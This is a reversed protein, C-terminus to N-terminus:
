NRDERYRRQYQEQWELIASRLGRNPTLVKHLLKLNTMPSTDHGSDLWARIAEAEYTFGDAAFHPDSMIEQFIPCLFDSPTSAEDSSAATISPRRVRPSAAKMLPGVAVWVERALDPRRTRSMEACRLGLHALQNAQVFPWSGASPDVISHLRGKKMADQVVEVIKQPSRGTLLQLIIIGFSYVDSQTTLEGTSMFEPDMYAFAGRPTTTRYSNSQILLRCLGFDGLKSVLNADLLINDPKLDGHVVPHPKNSHLFTLASCMEAIIRTRVQWTLPSTNNTCALRDELSGNPLFEYVLGFAERCSGILTVINPHRVRGLVAVEQHFESQGQLSEPHLLKIAVTTSRLSGKYVCGFGGEGIKLAKDLQRTAQELEFVSFETNVVEAPVSIRQLLGEAATVAADREQQLKVIDEQLEKLLGSITTMKQTHDEFASKIETIRHELMVKEEKADHLEDHIAKYQIKTEEIERTQRVLTEEITKRQRMEFQYLDELEKARQLASLLDKEASRRRNTEESVDNLKQRLRKVLKDRQRKTEEIEMRQRMIKEDMEVRKGKENQYLNEVDKERQLASLLDLEAKRLKNSEENTGEVLTGSNYEKSSAENNLATSKIKSLISRVSSPTKNSQVPSRSISPLNENMESTCILHGNCTFWIKCSPAVTEMLKLATKSKPTKMEKSYHQDAAAGMVLKTIGHLAILKALGEAVDEMEITVTDCHIKLDKRQRKATLAYEDMNKDARERMLNRYKSRRAEVELKHIAPTPSHVRVIVVRSGDKALNEMAWLLTSMANSIDETVAVFVDDKEAASSQEFLEDGLTEKESGNPDM